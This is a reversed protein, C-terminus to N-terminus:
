DVDAVKGLAMTEASPVCPPFPRAWDIEWTAPVAPFKAPDLLNKGGPTYRITAMSNDFNALRANDRAAIEPAVEDLGVLSGRVLRITGDQRRMARYYLRGYMTNWFWSNFGWEQDTTTSPLRVTTVHCVFEPENHFPATQDQGPDRQRRNPPSFGGGPLSLSKKGDGDDEWDVTGSGALTLISADNEHDYRWRVTDIATFSGGAMNSRLANTLQDATLASLQSYEALGEIGRTITTITIRAPAEFGGRADLEYLTVKQPEPLPQWEIRELKAGKAALPLVWRYPLVPRLSPRAVPPLTGDLWRPKGAITARVLVHDFYGPNPLRQDMGDDAGVNNVLLPEARIGLEALLALLLVTKGKCDAFRRQWSTDADVPSLNGAGLGVYVYRVEQQVLKLAAAAREMEDRHAAKIRAVEAKLPSGPALRAAQVYLPAFAEAVASWAPFDSYEAVRLWAYRPPADEPAPMAPPNAVAISLGGPTATAASQLAPSIRTRPEEGPEWSLAMRYHGPLPAEALSWLGAVTGGLTPDADRLTFSVELVDGVRLDPVQLTATALGSIMAQELQDERRLIEFKAKDLVNIAQGGRHITVGHVTASGSSPKWSLLVNGLQLAQPHLLKARYSHFQSQGAADLNIQLDQRELFLLGSADPPAPVAPTAKAWAPPPGHAIEESAAKAPGHAALAVAGAAALGFIRSLMFAYGIVGVRAFTRSEARNALESKTTGPVRRVWPQKVLWVGPTVRRQMFPRTRAIERRASEGERVTLQERDRLVGRKEGQEPRLEAAIAM